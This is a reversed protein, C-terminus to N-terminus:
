RSQGFYMIEDLERLQAEEYADEEEQRVRIEHEEDTEEEFTEIADKAADLRMNTSHLRNSESWSQM